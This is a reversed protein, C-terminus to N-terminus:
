LKQENLFQKAYEVIIDRHDSTLINTTIGFGPVVHTYGLYEVFRPEVGPDIMTYGTLTEILRPEIDEMFPAFNCSKMIAIMMLCPNIYDMNKAYKTRELAMAMLKIKEKESMASMCMDSAFLWQIFYLDGRELYDSVKIVSLYKSVLVPYFDGRNFLEVTVKNAQLEDNFMSVRPQFLDSSPTMMIFLPHELLTELLGCTSTSRITEEHPVFPNLVDYWFEPYEIADTVAPCVSERYSLLGWEDLFSDLSDPCDSSDKSCETLLLLMILVIYVSKKM